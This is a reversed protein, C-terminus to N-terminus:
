ILTLMVRATSGLVYVEGSGSFVGFLPCQPSGVVPIPLEPDPSLSTILGRSERNADGAAPFERSTRALCVIGVSPEVQFAAGILAHRVGTIAPLTGTFAQYTVTWPLSASLITAHGEQCSGIAARSIYSVQANPTKRLTASRFSGDLTVPCSIFFGGGAESFTLRTWIIRFAQHSYSLENASASGVACGLVLAAMLTALTASSRNRM